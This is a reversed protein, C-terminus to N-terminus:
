KERITQDLYKLGSSQAPDLHQNKPPKASHTPDAVLSLVSGSVHTGLQDESHATPLATHVRSMQDVTLMYIVVAGYLIFGHSFEYVNWGFDPSNSPSPAAHRCPTPLRSRWRKTPLALPHRQRLGKWMRYRGLYAEILWFLPWGHYQWIRGDGDNLPIPIDRFPFPTSSGSRNQMVGYEMLLILKASNPIEAICGQCLCLPNDGANTLAPSKDTSGFILTSPQTGFPHHCPINDLNTRLLPLATTHNPLSSGHWGRTLLYNIREICQNSAM